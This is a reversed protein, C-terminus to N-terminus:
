ARSQRHGGSKRQLAEQLVRLPTDVMWERDYKWRQINVDYNEPYFWYLQSHNRVTDMTFVQIDPLYRWLTYFFKHEHSPPMRGWLVVGSEEILDIAIPFPPATSLSFANYIRNRASEGSDTSLFMKTSTVDFRSRDIQARVSDVFNQMLFLVKRSVTSQSLNFKEQLVAQGISANATLERLIALDVTTFALRTGRNPRKVRKLESSAHQIDSAWADWDYRWSMTEPDFHRLDTVTTTRIGSSRFMGSIKCLGLDHLGELFLHLNHGGEPPVDFQIFLGTMPGYIRSRYHTYPHIDCAKELGELCGESDTQLVVIHRELGLADPDFVAIPDSLVRDKRLQQLHRNATVWSVGTREALEKISVMPKLEILHLLKLDLQSLPMTSEGTTLSM